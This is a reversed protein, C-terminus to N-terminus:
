PLVVVVENSPGSGGCSNFSRVRVYYTGPPGSGVLGTVPGQNIVLLNDLGPASGVTFTYGQPPAGAAPARWTFTVQLGNKTFVLETPAQPATCAVALQIENSSGGTGVANRARIRVFYLGPPVGAFTASTAASNTAVNALNSLGPSSGAEVVYTGIAGGASPATWNLTVTTGSVNAILGTPPGPLSFTSGTPYIARAGAIDDSSLPSPGSPCSPLLDPSMMSGPVTTHALGIAHGINHALADQFCGRQTLFTYAGPSNNLVVNGQVIQNFAVGNVVRVIPTAYAGGVGVISGSDSIEGCPDNFAISIRHDGEFTAVCRPGRAANRLLVLNMGSNNWLGMAADLEPLGGGLGGPPPQYDVRVPEGADGENWRM